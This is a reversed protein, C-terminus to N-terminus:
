TPMGPAMGNWTSGCCFLDQPANCRVCAGGMGAAATTDLPVTSYPTVFIPTPPKASRLVM